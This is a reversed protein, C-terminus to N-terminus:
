AVPNIRYAIGQASQVKQYGREECIADLERRVRRDRLTPAEVKVVIFTKRYNIYIKKGSYAASVVDKFTEAAARQRGSYLMRCEDSYREADRVAAFAFRGAPKTDLEKVKLM